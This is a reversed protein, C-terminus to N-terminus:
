CRPRWPPVARTRRSAHAWSSSGSLSRVCSLAERDGSPVAAGPPRLQASRSAYTVTRSPVASSRQVTLQTPEASRRWRPLTSNSRSQRWTRTSTAAAIVDGPDAVREAVPPAAVGVGGPGAHLRPARGDGARGSPEAGAQRASFASGLPFFPVFPVGDAACADFVDQESRDAVSFSNQVCAITTTAAGQRYEDLTVSSLGIGGILGEDRLAVMAALQEDLPVESVPIGACTSWPCRTWAGLASLNAEVGARLEDPGSRRCGSAAGTARAAWRRSSCSTTPTRICRRRPDARQRRRARLVARHRHPQGRRGGGAAPDGACCWPGRTAGFVGPGPLQMAGFGM